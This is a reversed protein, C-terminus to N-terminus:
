YPIEATSPDYGPAPAPAAQEVPMAGLEGALMLMVMAENRPLELLESRDKEPWKRVAELGRQAEAPSMPRKDDISYRRSM